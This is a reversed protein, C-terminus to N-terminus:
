EDSAFQLHLKGTYGYLLGAAGSLTKFNYVFQKGEELSLYQSITATLFIILVVTTTIWIPGYLDPNGEM